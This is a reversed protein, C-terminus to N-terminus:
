MSERLMMSNPSVVANSKLVIMKNAENPVIIENDNKINTVKEKNGNTM